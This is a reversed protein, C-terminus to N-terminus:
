PATKTDKHSSFISIRQGQDSLDATFFLDETPPLDVAMIGYDVGNVSVHLTREDRDVM